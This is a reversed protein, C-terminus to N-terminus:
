RPVGQLTQANNRRPIAAALGWAPETTTTTTRARAKLPRASQAHAAAPAAPPVSQTSSSPQASPIATIGVAPGAPRSPAVVLGGTPKKDNSDYM